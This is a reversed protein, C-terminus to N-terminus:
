DASLGKQLLEAVLQNLEVGREKSLKQLQQVLEGNLKVAFPVLGLARERERQERRDPTAAKAAAGFAAGKANMQNMLKKADSKALDTKKM